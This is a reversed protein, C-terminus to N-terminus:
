AKRSAELNKQGEEKANVLIAMNGHPHKNERMMQHCDGTEAFRWVKSLCPDVKKELVLDNLGKAEEDNAFHSGQFRKQRMWHYRLDITANYGTTGACIVVMGGADCIFASTPVTVEGPHEFVIRPSKREGLIEWIAKGFARAGKLWKGYAENDKWHPIMGWHDFNKRNIAGIAGLKKCYEAKDDHGIVAIPKAGRAKAIQIAM